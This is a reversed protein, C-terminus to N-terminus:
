ESLGTKKDWAPKVKDWTDFQGALTEIDNVFVGLIQRSTLKTDPFGVDRRLALLVDGIAPIALNEGPAIKELNTFRVHARVVPDAAILISDFAFTRLRPAYATPDITQGAQTEAAIDKLVNVYAEYLRRKSEALRAELARRKEQSARYLYGVGGLAALLLAYVVQAVQGGQQLLGVAYQLAFAGAIGFLVILGLGLLFSVARSM